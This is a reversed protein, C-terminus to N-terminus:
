LGLYAMVPPPLLEALGSRLDAPLSLPLTSQMSRGALFRLSHMVNKPYLKIHFGYSYATENTVGEVAAPVGGFPRYEFKSHYNLRDDLQNRNIEEVITGGNARFYQQRLTIVTDGHANFVCEVFIAGENIRITVHENRIVYETTPPEPSFGLPNAIPHKTLTVDELVRHDDRSTRYTQPVGFSAFISIKAQMPGAPLTSLEQMLAGWHWELHHTSNSDTKVELTPTMSPIPDDMSDRPLPQNFGLGLFM